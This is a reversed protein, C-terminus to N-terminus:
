AHARLAEERLACGLWTSISGHTVCGLWTTTIWLASEALLLRELTLEIFRIGFGLSLLLSGDFPASCRGVVVLLFYTKISSSSITKM